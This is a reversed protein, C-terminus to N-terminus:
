YCNIMIMILILHLINQPIKDAISFLDCYMRAHIIYKWLIAHQRVWFWGYIIVLEWTKIEYM